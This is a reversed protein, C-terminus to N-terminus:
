DYIYAAPVADTLWVGNESLYFKYGDEHMKYANIVLIVAAGRRSGVKAATERDASLHVYLRSQPKLGENRIGRVFRSVTGHYLVAPPEAEKLEVDVKVSHGQNARIKTFDDNFAFRQKDNTVVVEKIDELTVSVRRSKNMGTILASVDAWGNGDLTVGAAAPNHRLVLSMFKSITTIEKDTM